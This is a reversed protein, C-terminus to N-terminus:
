GRVPGDLYFGARNHLAEPSFLAQATARAERAIRARLGADARLAGIIQTAEETTQFLFGNEGHRIHEAYGGHHHCVVPIGSAMAELVVRGFTEVHAGSRYCFVDLRHLFDDAPVTGEALLTCDPGEPLRGRLATGGQIEIRCGMAILQRYLKPDEAHHKDPTDRSMRGVTFPRSAPSAPSDSSPGSSPRFRVIDIPSPHVVGALGLLQRQFESILVLEARPWRRWPPSGAVLRAIKPHFTNFVYILRRPPTVVAPWLKNRWHAGVFVFTGGRPVARGLVSVQRIPHRQLLTRSARSSTAWLSVHARDKLMAHLALTEQESGGFPNQFGNFLHIDNM